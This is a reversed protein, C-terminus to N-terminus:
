LLRLLLWVPLVGHSIGHRSQLAQRGRRLLGRCSIRVRSVRISGITAVLGIAGHPVSGKGLITLLASLTLGLHWRLSNSQTGHGRSPESRRIQFWKIMVVVALLGCRSNKPRSSGTGRHQYVHTVRQQRIAQSRVHGTKISTEVKQVHDDNGELLTGDVHTSSGLTSSHCGTADKQAKVFCTNKM